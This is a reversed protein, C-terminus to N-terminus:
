HQNKLFNTIPYIQDTKVTIIAPLFMVHVDAVGPKPNQLYAVCIPTQNEKNRVQSNAKDM